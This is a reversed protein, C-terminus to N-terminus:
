KSTSLVRTEWSLRPRVAHRAYNASKDIIRFKNDEYDHLNFRLCQGKHFITELGEVKVISISIFYRGDALFYGPFKCESEYDGLELPEDSYPDDTLSIGRMNSSALVEMRELRHLNISTFLRNGPMFNRYRMRIMFGRSSDIMGSVPSDYVERIYM